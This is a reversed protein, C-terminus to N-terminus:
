DKRISNSEEEQLFNAYEQLSEVVQKASTLKDFSSLWERATLGALEEFNTDVPEVHVGSAKEIDEALFPNLEKIGKVFSNVLLEFTNM